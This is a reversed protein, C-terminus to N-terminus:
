NASRQSGNGARLGFNKSTLWQNKTELIHTHNNKNQNKLCLM